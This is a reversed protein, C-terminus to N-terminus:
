NSVDASSFHSILLYLESTGRWRCTVQCSPSTCHLYYIYIYICKKYGEFSVKPNKGVCKIKLQCVISRPPHSWLRYTVLISEERMPAFRYMALMAVYMTSAGGEVNLGEQRGLISLAAATYGYNINLACM